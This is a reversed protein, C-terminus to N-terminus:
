PCPTSCTISSRRGPCTSSTSAASPRARGDQSGSRGTRIPRSSSAGRPQDDRTRDVARVANRPRHDPRGAWRTWQAAQAPRRDLRRALQRRCGPRRVLRRRPRVARDGPGPGRDRHRGAPDRRLRLLHRGLQQDPRAEAPGAVRRSCAAGPVAPSLCREPQGPGHGVLGPGSRADRVIRGARSGLRLGGSPDRDPGPDHRVPRGRDRGPFQGLLRPQARLGRRVDRDHGAPAPHDISRAGPRVGRSPQRDVAPRARAPPRDRATRPGLRREAPGPVLRSRAPRAFREDRDHRPLRHSGANRIRVSRAVIPQDRFITYSLSVEVGSPRDVLRIEASTAEDESEVYTSPLGPIPAKGAFVRYSDYELRLVTSGDPQEIVLGPVRFDGGGATPLELAIPDDVRNDFGAFGARGLHRYSRETALRGGFHLLGISGDELVRVVYSIQDNYLHLQASEALWEINM